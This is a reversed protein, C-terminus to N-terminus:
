CDLFFYIFLYCFIVDIFSSLVVVDCWLFYFCIFLNLVTFIILPLYVFSCYIFLLFLSCYSSM